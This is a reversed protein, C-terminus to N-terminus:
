VEKEEGKERRGKKSREVQVEGKGRREERGAGGGGMERVGLGQRGRRPIWQPDASRALYLEQPDPNGAFYQRCCKM